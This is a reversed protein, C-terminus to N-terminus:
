LRVQYGFVHPSNDIIAVKALDRGLVTLDKLFNGNVQICSDRFLRHTIWKREPDLIDLLTDAYV